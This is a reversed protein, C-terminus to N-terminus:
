HKETEKIAETLLISVVEQPLYTKNGIEIIANNHVGAAIEYKASSMVVMLDNSYKQGILNKM